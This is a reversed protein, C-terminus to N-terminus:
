LEGGVGEIELVDMKDLVGESVTIANVKTWVIAEERLTKAATLEQTGQRVIVRQQRDPEIILEHPTQCEYLSMFLRQLGAQDFSPWQEAQIKVKIKVDVNAIMDPLSVFTNPGNETAEYVVTVKEISPLIVEEVIEYGGHHVDIILM